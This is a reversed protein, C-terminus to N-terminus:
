GERDEKQSHSVHLAVLRAVTIAVFLQGVVAELWSLTRAPRSRPTIDGYGLTTLTVFSYYRFTEERNLARRVTEPPAAAVTSAPKAFSGPQITETLWYLGAWAVGLLLYVAVIGRLVDTTVDDARVVDGAVKWILLAFLMVIMLQAVARGAMSDPWILSAITAAVAVAAVAVAVVLLARRRGIELAASVAVLTFVLELITEGTTSLPILSPIVLLGGLSLLLITLRGAKPRDRRGASGARAGPETMSGPM